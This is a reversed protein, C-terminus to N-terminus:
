DRLGKKIAHIIGMTTTEFDEMDHTNVLLKVDGIKCLKGDNKMTISVVTAGVKKAGKVAKLVNESNGSGSIAILLDCCHFNKSKLQKIFINEYGFDNGIATINSSSTLADADFGIERLDSAFHVANAHSGGNGIIFVRDITDYFLNILDNLEPSTMIDTSIPEIIM